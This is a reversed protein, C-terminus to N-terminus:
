LIKPISHDERALAAHRGPKDRLQKLDTARPNSSDHLSFALMALHTRPGAASRGHHLDIQNAQTLQHLLLGIRRDFLQV